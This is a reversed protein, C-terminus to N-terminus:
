AGDVTEEGAGRKTGNEKVRGFEGIRGQMIDENELQDLRHLEKRIFTVVASLHTPLKLHTIPSAPDTPSSDTPSSSPASPTFDTPLDSYRAAFLNRWVWAALESDGGLVDGQDMGPARPPASLEPLEQGIAIAYDFGVGAGKWQEGMEKMYKKVVREREGEGLTLRM